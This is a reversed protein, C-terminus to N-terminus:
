LDSRSRHRFIRYQTRRNSGGNRRQLPDKVGMLEIFHSWSLKTALQSVIQFDPFLEAFQMMRRINREQFGRKGFHQQLQTALQSVIQKGYEARQNDLSDNNIRRGIQWYLITITKNATNALFARSEEILRVIDDYLQNQFTNLAM